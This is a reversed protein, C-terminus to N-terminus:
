VMTGECFKDLGKKVLLVAIFGAIPIWVSETFMGARVLLIRNIEKVIDKSESEHSKYYECLQDKIKNGFEFLFRLFIRKGTKVTWEHRINEHDLGKVSPNGEAAKQALDTPFLALEKKYPFSEDNYPFANNRFRATEERNVLTFVDMLLLDKQDSHHQAYELANKSYVSLAAYLQTLNMDDPIMKFQSGEEFSNYKELAHWSVGTYPGGSMNNIEFLMQDIKEQDVRTTEMAVSKPILCCNLIFYCDLISKLWL